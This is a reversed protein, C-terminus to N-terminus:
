VVWMGRLIETFFFLRSAKDLASPGKSYDPYERNISWDETLAQSPAIVGVRGGVVSAPNSRDKKAANGALIESDAPSSGATHASASSRISPETFRSTSTAMSRLQSQAGLLQIIRSSSITSRAASRAVLQSAATMTFAM